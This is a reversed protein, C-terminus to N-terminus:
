ALKKGRELLSAAVGEEAGLLPTSDAGGAWRREKGLSFDM